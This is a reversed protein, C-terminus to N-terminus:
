VERSEILYILPWDNGIVGFDKRVTELLIGRETAASLDILVLLAVEQRDM